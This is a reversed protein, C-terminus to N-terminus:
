RKYDATLVISGSADKRRSVSYEGYKKEGSLYSEIDGYVEEFTNRSVTLSLICHAFLREEGEKGLKKKLEPSIWFSVTDIYGEADTNGVIMLGDDTAAAFSGENIDASVFKVPEEESACSATLLELLTRPQVSKKGYLEYISEIKQKTDKYGTGIKGFAELAELYNGENFFGMAIQYSDEFKSIRKAYEASDEYGQAQVFRMRATVYDEAEFAAIGENYRKELREIYAVYEPANEYRPISAFSNKAAAYDRAEFFGLAEVYIREYEAISNLYSRSNAYDGAAEFYAKALEVSGEDYAKVGANYNQIQENSVCGCMFAFLLTVALLLSLKKM